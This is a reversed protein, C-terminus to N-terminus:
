CTTQMKGLSACCENGSSGIMRLERGVAGRNFRSLEGAHSQLEVYSKRLAEEAEPREAIDEAALLIMLKQTNAQFL